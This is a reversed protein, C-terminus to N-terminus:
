IIKTELSFIKVKRTVFRQKEKKKGREKKKIYM